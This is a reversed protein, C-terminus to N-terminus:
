GRAMSETDGTVIITTVQSATPLNYQPQNAPREKILLTCEHINQEQALQRFVHVFPNCQHLIQQLKNVITQHLHPTELMRNQLEHAIDYIYLQLFRPRSGENPFFGGIRHYMAGQARFSYIGRGTAVINEDMHVGLSTFSLVHNYSRIHQRFHRSESSCGSFIQVLEDPATVRPLLVKGGSCCMDRSEHYFLRAHCHACTTPTSLQFMVMVVTNRFNRACNHIRQFRQQRGVHM